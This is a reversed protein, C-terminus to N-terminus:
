RIPIPDPRAAGAPAAKLAKATAYCFLTLLMPTMPQFGAAPVLFHSAFSWLPLTWALLLVVREGPLWFGTRVGYWGMSAIPVALLILDYDYAFPTVITVGCALVAGALPMPVRRRWVLAVAGAVGLAMITHLAYAVGGGAGIALAFVFPSPMKGWNLGGAELLARAGDMAILAAAGTDWGFVALAGAQLTLVTVGAVWFVRWHGGCMLALPILVGFQPKFSMLGILIGAAVPRRDILVLAGGLCALLLGGNQGNVATIWLGPFAAAALITTRSPALSWITRLALGAGTVTWILLAPVYPLAALPAVVLLFAPPYFWGYRSDNVPAGPHRSALWGEPGYAKIADGDLALHGIGWFSTFDSGLSNAGFHLFDPPLLIGIAVAWGQMMLMTMAALRLRDATLWHGTAPQEFGRDFVAM